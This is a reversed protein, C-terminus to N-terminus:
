TTTNGWLERWWLDFSARRAGAPVEDRDRAAAPTAGRASGVAAPQVGRAEELRDAEEIAREVERRAYARISPVADGAHSEIAKILAVTGEAILDLLGLRRQAHKSAVDLVLRLNANVLRDRAEGDGARASRALRREQAPALREQRLIFEVYHRLAPDTEQRDLTGM